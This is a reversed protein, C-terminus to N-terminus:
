YHKGEYCVSDDIVIEESANNPVQEISFNLENIDTSYRESTENLREQDDNDNNQELYLGWQSLQELSNISAM